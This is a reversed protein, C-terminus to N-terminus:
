NIKRLVVIVFALLIGILIGVNLDAVIQTLIATSNILYM